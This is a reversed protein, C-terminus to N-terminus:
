VRLLQFLTYGSRGFCLSVSWKQCGEEQDPIADSIFNPCACRQDGFLINVDYLM